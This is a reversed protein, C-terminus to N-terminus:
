SFLFHNFSYVFIYLSAWAIEVVSSPPHIVVAKLVIFTYYGFCNLLFLLNSIFNLGLCIVLDLFNNTLVNLLKLISCSKSCQGVGWVSLANDLLPLLSPCPLGPQSLLLIGTTRVARGPSMEHSSCCNEFPDGLGSM